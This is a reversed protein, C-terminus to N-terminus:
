ITKGKNAYQNYLMKAIGLPEEKAAEEAYRELMFDVMMERGPAKDGLTIGTLTKKMQKMLIKLFEAEMDQSVKRLKKKDMESMESDKYSVPPPTNILPKMEM